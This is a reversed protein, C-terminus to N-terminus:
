QMCSAYRNEKRPDIKWMSSIPGSTMRSTPMTGRGNMGMERRTETVVGMVNQNYLHPDMALDYYSEM